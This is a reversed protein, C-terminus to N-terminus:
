DGTAIIGQRALETIRNGEYGLEKLIAVTDTGVPRPAASPRPVSGNLKFAAGPVILDHGLEPSFLEHLLGRAATQPEAIAEPITRVRGAPVGAAMLVEEWEAANRQTFVAVLEVRLAAANARREVPDAYRPDFLLDPRGLADCLKQFQREHNAALALLGDKTAFVGSSPSGSAATNGAPRPITGANLHESIVASMMAFACDRMAVDVRQFAGTRNRTALGAMVAFAAYLGTIYDVVPPGVRLPASEPTGTVSMLGSMAQIVHDYAPWASFPGDQGFGTISAFVLRPNLARLSVEEFGARALVGARLGEVFVDAGRLLNRLIDAGEPIRIDVALMRKDASQALFVAGLGADSLPGPPGIRRALEGEPVEVKIVEAGLLGLLYTCYPGALVHTLDIVRVGSLPRDSM